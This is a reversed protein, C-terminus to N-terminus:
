FMVTNTTIALCAGCSRGSRDTAAADPTWTGNTGSSTSSGGGSESGLTVTLTTTSAGVTLSTTSGTYTVTGNIYNSGGLDFKGVHLGTTCTATAAPQLVDDTATGDVATWTMSLTQTSSANSWGSCLSPENVQRSWVFTIKDGGRIRGVNGNGDAATVSEPFMAPTTLAAGGLAKSTVTLSAAWAVGLDAVLVVALLAAIVAPRKM